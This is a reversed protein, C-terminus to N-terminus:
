IKEWQSIIPRDCFHGSRLDDIYFNWSICTTARSASVIEQSQWSGIEVVTPKTPNCVEFNVNQPLTVQGSRTVQGKTTHPWFKCVIHPISTPIPIGFKAASRAATKSSDAFFRLPPRIGAGGDTRPNFRSASFAPLLFHCFSFHTMSDLAKM